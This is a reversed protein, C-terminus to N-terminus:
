PNTSGTAHWRKPFGGRAMARALLGAGRAQAFGADDIYKLDVLRAVVAALDPPVDGDWGRERLKRKLYDTLRGASTAFRAVYGLALENLQLTDLPRPVKRQKQQWKKAPRAHEGDDDM